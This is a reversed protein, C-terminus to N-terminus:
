QFNKTNELKNDIIYKDYANAAEIKDDFYGLHKYKNNARIECRWKNKYKHWSVGRYGSTNTSILKRTNSSQTSKNAWRCNSPNYGKDNEKRDLTLDKSYGNALAWDRFSEYSSLWESCVNIGRGGYNFYKTANPNTCRQIMMNRINYLRSKAEGHKINITKNACSRCKSTVSNVRTKIHKKCIPCEFIGYHSKSTSKDTLYIRGLDEILLLNQNQNNQM